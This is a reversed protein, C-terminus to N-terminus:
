KIEEVGKILQIKHINEDLALCYFRAILDHLTIMYESTRSDDARQTISVARIPLHLRQFFQLKLDFAEHKPKLIYEIYIEHLNFCKAFKFLNNLVTRFPLM